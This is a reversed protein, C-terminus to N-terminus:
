GGSARNEVVGVFYSDPYGGGAAPHAIAVFADDLDPPAHLTQTRGGLGFREQAAVVPQGALCRDRVGACVDLESGQAALRSDEGSGDMAVYVRVRQGHTLSIGDQEVAVLGAAVLAANIPQGDVHAGGGHRHVQHVQFGAAGYVGRGEFVRLLEAAAVYHIADSVVAAGVPALQPLHHQGGYIKLNPLHGATQPEVAAADVFHDHHGIGGHPVQQKAKVHM